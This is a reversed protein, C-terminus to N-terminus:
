RTSTAACCLPGPESTEWRGRGLSRPGAGRPGGAAAFEASGGAANEGAVRGQKHATTGLPLYAARELLRHWTEVCDGAAWVGDVDTRMARDVRIAGRVGAEIGAATALEANPRVGAVVLVLDVRTIFGDSGEVQLGAGSREIGRVEVGTVVETGHRQLEDRIMKALSTDVSSMVQGLQEVLTVRLGRQGFADAMELGIYGGGVSLASSAGAAVADHVAFSDAMTHLSHVGPLELGAVPPRIPLAGTAVVLRDYDLKSLGAASEITVRRNSADIEVARTDLALELGSGQLEDLTRHALNRWDPTEGSVYFPLGCISFNPFRDAVVLRVELSPDLQRAQLGASIGADSGGVIVLRKM